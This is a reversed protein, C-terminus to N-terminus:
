DMKTTLVTTSYVGTFFLTVKMFDKANKIVIFLKRVHNKEDVNFVDLVYASVTVSVAWKFM